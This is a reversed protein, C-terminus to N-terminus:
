IDRATFSKFYEDDSTRVPAQEAGETAPPQPPPPAPNVPAQEAEQTSPPQPPPSPKVPAATLFSSQAFGAAPADEKALCGLRSPSGPVKQENSRRSHKAEVSRRPVVGVGDTASRRAVRPQPLPLFHVNGNVDGCVVLSDKPGAFAACTIACDAVFMFLLQGTKIDWLNMREEATTILRAGGADFVAGQVLSSSDEVGASLTHLLTGTATEWIRAQQGSLTVTTAGDAALEVAHVERPHGDLEAVCAGSNLDWVRASLDYSGTVAYRCDESLAASLVDESHGDLVLACVGAATDWVRATWDKSYTLVLAGDHSMLVGNIGGSHVYAKNRDGRQQLMKVCEGSVMDWIALSSDFLVVAALKGDWGCAFSKVRSGAVAPMCRSPAVGESDPAGLRGLDWVCVQRDGSVTVVGETGNLKTLWKIAASHGGSGALVGKCSYDSADWVYAAGDQGATVVQTDQSVVMKTVSGNHRVLSSTRRYENVAAKLDWVRATNDGGTTVAVTGDASMVSQTVESSHGELVASLSSSATDWVSVSCDSGATVLTTARYAVTNLWGAHDLLVKLPQGDSLRWVRATQDDSATAVLDGNVSLSSVPGIHGELIHLCGGSRCDWIRASHDNSGTVAVDAAASLGVATVWGTHGEFTARCTGYRLNWLRASFDASGTITQCHDDTWEVNFCADMCLVEGTHGTMHHMIKDSAPAWVGVSGNFAGSVVISGNTAVKLCKVATRHPRLVKKCVGAELDWVNIHGTTTGTLILGANLSLGVCTVPSSGELLLVCDGIEMDWVCTSGDASCTVLDMADPSLAMCTLDGRHGRLALRAGRGVQELTHTEPVLAEIPEAEGSSEMSARGEGDLSSAASGSVKALLEVSGKRALEGASGAPKGKRLYRHKKSLQGEGGTRRGSYKGSAIAAKVDKVWQAIGPYQSQMALLRGIMQAPLVCADIHSLCCGVSMQFAQLFLRVEPDQSLLLFRRFDVVTSAVGYSHLKEELWFPDSLLGKLADLNGSESLHFTVNHMFYGDDPVDAINGGEEAYRELLFSHMAPLIDGAVAQLHEQVEPTVLAWVSYESPQASLVLGCQELGDVTRVVEDAGMVRSWLRRLVSMPVPTNAPVTALMLLPVRLPEPVASLLMSREGLEEVLDLEEEESLMQVTKRATAELCDQQPAEGLQLALKGAEQATIRAEAMSKRARHFEAAAESPALGTGEGETPLTVSMRSSKNIRLSRDEGGAAQAAQALANQMTPDSSLSARRTEMSQRARRFEQAAQSAAGGSDAIQPPELLTMSMRKKRLNLVAQAAAEEDVALGGTEWIQDGSGSNCRSALESNALSSRVSRHSANSNRNARAPQSPSAPPFAQTAKPPPPPPCTDRAEDKLSVKIGSTRASSSSERKERKDAKSTACGM